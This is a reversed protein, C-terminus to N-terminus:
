NEGSLPFNITAVLVPSTHNSIGPAVGVICLGPPLRTPAANKGDPLKCAALANPVVCTYPMSGAFVKTLLGVQPPNIWGSGFVSARYAASGPALETHTILLVGAALVKAIPANVAFSTSM